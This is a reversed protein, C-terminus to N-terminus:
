VKGEKRLEKAAAMAASFDGLKSGTAGAARASKRSRREIPNAVCNKLECHVPDHDALLFNEMMKRIYPNGLQSEHFVNVNNIGFPEFRLIQLEVAGGSSMHKLFEDKMRLNTQQTRGPWIYGQVRQALNEAEGIYAASIVGSQGRFVWRYLAPKSYSDVFAKTLPSQCAFLKGPAVEIPEWEYSIRLPTWEKMEQGKEM